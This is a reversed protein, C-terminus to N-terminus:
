VLRGLVDGLLYAVAAAGGGIALTELSSRWWSAEVVAAKAAGVLLFAAGTVVSSWLFPRDIWGLGSGLLFPLLPVAGVVLFAAFTASGALVPSRTAKSLGFEDVIMTEIWRDRDATIAEVVGDLAEGGLGKRRFIERVEEREGEPFAEIQASESRRIREHLEADARTGLFNSAAMSLGDAVLNAVGLVAVVAVSMDAGAVGAVIAFTTVVGDISGYIFDGLYRASGPADLRQRIREPTHDEALTPRARAM